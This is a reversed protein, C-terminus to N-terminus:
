WDVEHDYIMRTQRRGTIERNITQEVDEEQLSTAFSNRRDM